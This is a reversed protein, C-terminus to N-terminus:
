LTRGLKGPSVDFTETDEMNTSFDDRDAVNTTGASNTQALEDHYSLIHQKLKCFSMFAQPCNTVPCRVESGSSTLGHHFRYHHFLNSVKSIQLQCKHSEM